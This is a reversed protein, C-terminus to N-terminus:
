PEGVELRSAEAVGDPVIAEGDLLRGIRRYTVWIKGHVRRNRELRVELPTLWPPRV